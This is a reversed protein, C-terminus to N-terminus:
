SPGMLLLLANDEPDLLWAESGFAEQRPAHLQRAGLAIAQHIWAELAAADGKRKLCVALRGLQRPQPRNRSPQYLELWGASPLDVRWHTPSLGPQVTQHVLAAYFTALALADDAALVLATEPCPPVWGPTAEPNPM